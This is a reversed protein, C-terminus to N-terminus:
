FKFNLDLRFRNGDEKSTATPSRREIADVIYLRAVLNMRDSIAYAGRM